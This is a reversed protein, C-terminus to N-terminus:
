ATLYAEAEAVETEDFFAFRKMSQESIFHQRASSELMGLLPDFYGNINFVALPKEHRDLSRSVMIRFFEEYTGAGGPVVLFADSRQEMLRLREPIDATYILEECDVFLQEYRDNRFFEPVIGLIRGGRRQFGRAVAGMMGDCGGGFVLRHGKAALYEGLQEGAAIYAPDILASASGFVCINM